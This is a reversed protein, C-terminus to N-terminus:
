KILELFHKYFNESYFKKANSMGANGMSHRLSADNILVSLSDLIQSTLDVDANLIFGCDPTVYEPIGGRNTTIIPLGIAEYEINNVSAAEYYLSPNSAIDMANLIEHVKNNPMFGTFTVKDKIPKVIEFLEKVFPSVMESTERFNGGLAGVIFLRTDPSNLLKFAEALYRVGKLEVIRGVFSIAIEGDSLGLQKRIKNRLKDSPLFDDRNICNLLVKIKEAPYHTQKLAEQKIYESVAFVKSCVDLSDEKLDFRNHLHCIMKKDGIFNKLISLFEINNEVIVTDYDLKSLSNIIFEQWSSLFPYGRLPCLIHRNLRNIVKEYFGSRKYWIFDTYKYKKSINYAEVDHPTIITLQFGHLVENQRVLHQIIVEIAGGKSAPIPLNAPAIIVVKKM